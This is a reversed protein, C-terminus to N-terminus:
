IRKEKKKLSMNMKRTFHQEYKKKAFENIKSLSRDDDFLRIIDILTFKKPLRYLIKRSVGSKRIRDFLIQILPRGKIKRLAKKPLRKSATRVTVFVLCNM